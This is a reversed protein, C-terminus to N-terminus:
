VVLQSVVHVSFGGANSTYRCHSAGYISSFGVFMCFLCVFLVIILVKHFHEMLIEKRHIRKFIKFAMM